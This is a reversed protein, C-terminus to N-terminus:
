ARERLWELDAASIAVSEGDLYVLLNGEGDIDEAVCSFPNESTKLKISVERGITRVKAAWEAQLDEGSTWREYLGSFSALIMQRVKTISVEFGLELALSTSDSQLAGM